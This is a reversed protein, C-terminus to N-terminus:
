GSLGRLQREADAIMPHGAPMIRRRTELAKTLLERAESV